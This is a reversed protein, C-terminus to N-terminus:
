LSNGSGIGFEMLLVFPGGIWVILPALFLIYLHSVFLGIFIEFSLGYTVILMVSLIFYSLLGFLYCAFTYQLITMKSM